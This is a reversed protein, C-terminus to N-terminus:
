YQYRNSTDEEKKDIWISHWRKSIEDMKWNQCKSTITNHVLVMYGISTGLVTLKTKIKVMGLVSLFDLFPQFVLLLHSLPFLRTRSPLAVFLIPKYITIILIWSHYPINTCGTYGIILHLIIGVGHHFFVLKVM